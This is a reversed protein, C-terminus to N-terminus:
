RVPIASRECGIAKARLMEHKVDDHEADCEAEEGQRDAVGDGAITESSIAM